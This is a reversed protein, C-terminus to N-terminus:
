KSISEVKHRFYSQLSVFLNRELWYLGPYEEKLKPQATLPIEKGTPVSGETLTNQLLLKFSWVDRKKNASSVFKWHCICNWRFVKERSPPFGDNLIASVVGTLLFYQNPTLKAELIKENGLFRPFWIEM